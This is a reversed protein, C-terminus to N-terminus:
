LRLVGLIIIGRMLDAAVKILRCLFLLICDIVATAPAEKSSPASCVGQHVVKTTTKKMM